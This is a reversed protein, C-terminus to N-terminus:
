NDGVHETLAKIEQIQLKKVVELEKTSLGSFDFKNINITTQITETKMIETWKDRQRISMWKNAAWPDPPYYKDIVTKIISGKYCHLITEPVTFGVARKYFAEAVKADAELKGANLANLFGGKNTRKWYDITHVNVGMVNAIEKDTAGLLALQFAQRSRDNNWVAPAKGKRIM